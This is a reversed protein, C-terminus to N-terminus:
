EVYWLTDLVMGLGVYSYWDNFQFNSSRRNQPDLYTLISPPHCFRNNRCHVFDHPGEDELSIKLSFCCKAFKAEILQRSANFFDLSIWMFDDYIWCKVFGGFDVAERAGRSGGAGDRTCRFKTGRLRQFTTNWVNSCHYFITASFFPSFPFYPFVTSM